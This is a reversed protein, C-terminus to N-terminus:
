HSTHLCNCNYASTNPVSHNYLHSTLPHQWHEQIIYDRERWRELLYLFTVRDLQCLRIPQKWSLFYFRISDCPMEICEVQITSGVDLWTSNRKSSMQRLAWSSASAGLGKLRCATLRPPLPRWGCACFPIVVTVYRNAAATLRHLSSSKSRKAARRGFKPASSASPAKDWSMVLLIWSMRMRHGRHGHSQQTWFGTVTQLM